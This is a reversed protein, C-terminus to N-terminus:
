IEYDAGVSTFRAKGGKAMHVTVSLALGFFVQQPKKLNFRTRNDVLDELCNVGTHHTPGAIVFNFQGEGTGHPDCTGPDNQGDMIRVATISTHALLEYLIFVRLLRARKGDVIVPTPLPFFINAQTGMNGAPLTFSLGGLELTSQYIHSIGVSGHTWYSHLAM